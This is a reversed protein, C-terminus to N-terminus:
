HVLRIVNSQKAISVLGGCVAVLIDEDPLDDDDLDDGAKLDMTAIAHQLAPVILLTLASLIWGLVKRALSVDDKNQNYIRQM